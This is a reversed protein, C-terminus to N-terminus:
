LKQPTRNLLVLSAIILAGGVMAGAGISEGPVLLASMLAGSLPILFRYGALLNVPFLQALRNWICFATASVAALYVTMVATPFDLLALFGSWGAGGAIMLLVGGGFLASATALIPDISSDLRRFLTLALAGCLSAALFLCGGLVPDGAGAGPRYVAITIGLSSLALLYWQRRGPKPSGLMLPALLVWWLSGTSVLLSALVGSSVSLGTYFFLYQGFTQTLAIATVPWFSRVSFGAIPRRLFPVLILGALAFRVGAFVLRVSFTDAGDWRAYVFKIGPFASGWLLACLVVFLPLTKRTM